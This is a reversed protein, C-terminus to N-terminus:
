TTEDETYKACNNPTEYVTMSKVPFGANRMENYFFKAFEEATPRFEVTIMDFGEDQLAKVTNEKLSNEEMIFKHDYSDALDKLFKKVDSFDILMGRSEGDKELEEGAIEAIIDWRHGHLNACKGGHGLLFHASDFSAKATLFYM